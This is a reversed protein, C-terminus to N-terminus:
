NENVYLHISLVFSEEYHKNKIGDHLHCRLKLGKGVHM